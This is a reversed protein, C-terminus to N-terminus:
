ICSYVSSANYFINERSDSSNSDDSCDCDMDDDIDSTYDDDDDYDETDGSMDSDVPTITAMLYICYRQSQFDNECLLKKEEEDLPHESALDELRPEVAYQITDTTRIDVYFVTRQLINIVIYDLLTLPVM